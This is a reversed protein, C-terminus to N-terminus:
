KLLEEFSVDELSEIYALTKPADLSFTFHLSQNLWLAEGDFTGVLVAKKMFKDVVALSMDPNRVVEYHNRLDKEPIERIECLEQLFVELVGSMTKAVAAAVKSPFTPNESTTKKSMEFLKTFCETFIIKTM